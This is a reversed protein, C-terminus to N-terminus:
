CGEAPANNLSMWTSRLRMTRGSLMPCARAIWIWAAPRWHYNRGAASVLAGVKPMTAYTKVSVPDGPRRSRSVAQHQEAQARERPCRVAFAPRRLFYASTSGPGPEVPFSSGRNWKSMLAVNAKAFVRQKFARM